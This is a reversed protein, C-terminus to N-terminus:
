VLLKPRAQAKRWVFYSPARRSSASGALAQALRGGAMSSGISHASSRGGTLAAPPLLILAASAM